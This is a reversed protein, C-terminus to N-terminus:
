ELMLVSFRKGKQKSIHMLTIHLNKVYLKYTFKHM